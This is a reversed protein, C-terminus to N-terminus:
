ALKLAQQSQQLDCGHAARRPQGGSRFLIISQHTNSKSDCQADVRSVPSSPKGCRRDQSGISIGQQVTAAGGATTSTQVLEGTIQNGDLVVTLQIVKHREARGSCVIESTMRRLDARIRSQCSTQQLSEFPTDRDTGSGNWEGNLETLKIEARAPFSVIWAALAVAIGVRPHGSTLASM